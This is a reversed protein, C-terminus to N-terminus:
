FMLYSFTDFNMNSVMHNFDSSTLIKLHNVVKTTFSVKVNSSYESFPVFYNLDIQSLWINKWVVVAIIIIFLSTLFIYVIFMEVQIDTLSSTDIM